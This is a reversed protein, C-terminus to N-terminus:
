AAREQLRHRSLITHIPGGPRLESSVLMVTESSTQMPEPPTYAALAEALRALSDRGTGDRVRGLTLHPTYRRGEREFGLQSLAGELGAQLGRVGDEADRIGVWLVRAREPNPFAGVGGVTFRCSPQRSAQAEVASNVGEVRSAEVEGLFKLTLHIGDPQVWRVWGGDMNRRLSEQTERLRKRVSPELELAIFLRM